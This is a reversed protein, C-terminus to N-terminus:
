AKRRTGRKSSRIRRSKKSGGRVKSLPTLDLFREIEKAASKNIMNVDSIYQENIKVIEAEKIRMLIRANTANRSSNVEENSNKGRVNRAIERKMKSNEEKDVLKNYEQSAKSFGAQYGRFASNLDSAHWSKIDHDYKNKAATLDEPSLANISKDKLVIPLVSELSAPKNEIFTAM